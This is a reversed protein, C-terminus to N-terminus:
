HPASRDWGPERWPSSCNGAPLSDIRAAAAEREPTDEISCGGSLQPPLARSHTYHDSKTAAYSPRAEWAALWSCIHPWEEEDRVDYGKFYLLSAIQRELMPVFRIDALTIDDGFLFPGPTETLAEELEGLHELYIERYEQPKRVGTLWWMWRAYLRRELSNYKGDDCLFRM